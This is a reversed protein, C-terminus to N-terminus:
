KVGEIFEMLNDIIEMEAGDDYKADHHDRCRPVTVYDHPKCSVGAGWRLKRVHHAESDKGCWPMGCKKGRIFKLYKRNRYTKSKPNARITM